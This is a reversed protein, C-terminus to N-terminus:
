FTPLVLLKRCAIEEGRAILGVHIGHQKIQVAFGGEAYRNQYPFLSVDGDQLHYNKPGRHHFVEELIEPPAIPTADTPTTPSPPQIQKNAASTSPSPM